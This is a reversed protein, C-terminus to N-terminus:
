GAVCFGVRMVGVIGRIAKGVSVIMILIIERMRM